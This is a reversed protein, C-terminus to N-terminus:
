AQLVGRGGPRVNYPKIFLHGSVCNYWQLGREQCEQFSMRNFAKSYDLSTVVTSARYDDLDELVTQWLLFLAHDTGLGKVEGFQNDRMKIEGKLWDLVYSEYIKSALMTCSISYYQFLSLM